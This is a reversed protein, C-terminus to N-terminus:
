CFLALKLKLTIMTGVERLSDYSTKLKTTIYIYGRRGEGEGWCLEEEVEGGGVAGLVARAFCCCWCSADTRM